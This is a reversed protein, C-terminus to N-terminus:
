AARRAAIERAQAVSHALAKECYVHKGARLAAKSLPVHWRQGTAIVVADVTKEAALLQRYDGYLRAKQVVEGAPGHQAAEKKEAAFQRADVDCLAVVNEGSALIAPLLQRSRGGCGIMAINLRNNAGGAGLARSPLVQPLALAGIGSLGVQKLFRRRTSQSQHQM